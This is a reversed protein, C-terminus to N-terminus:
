ECLYPYVQSDDYVTRSICIADLFLKENWLVITEQASEEGSGGDNYFESSILDGVDVWKM